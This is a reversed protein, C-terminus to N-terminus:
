DFLKSPQCMLLLFFYLHAQFEPHLCDNGSPGRLAEDIRAPERSRGDAGSRGARYGTKCRRPRACDRLVLNRKETKGWMVVGSRVSAELCLQILLSLCDLSSTRCLLVDRRAKIPWGFHVFNLTRLSRITAKSKKMTKRFILKERM